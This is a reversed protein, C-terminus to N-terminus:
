QCQLGFGRISFLKLNRSSASVLVPPRFPSVFGFFRVFPVLAFIMYKHGIKHAGGLVTGWMM